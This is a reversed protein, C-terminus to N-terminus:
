DNVPVYIHNAEKEISIYLFNLSIFDLDKVINAVIYSLNYRSISFNGFNNGFITM